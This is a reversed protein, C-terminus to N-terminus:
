SEGAREYALWIEGTWFGTTWEVNESPPYIQDRSNSDPFRDTFDKLNARVRRVADDLWREAEVATMVSYKELTERSQM